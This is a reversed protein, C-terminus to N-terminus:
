ELQKFFFGNITMSSFSLLLCNETTGQNRALFAVNAEEEILTRVKNLASETVVLPQPTVIEPASM